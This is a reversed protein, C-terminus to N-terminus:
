REPARARRWRRPHGRGVRGLGGGPRARVSRVAAASGRPGDTTAVGGANAAAAALSQSAVEGQSLVGATAPGTGGKTGLLALNLADVAATLQAAKKDSVAPKPGAPGGQPAATRPAEAVKTDKKEEKGKDEVPKEEVPVQPM